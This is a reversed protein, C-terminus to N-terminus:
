AALSSLGAVHRLICLADDVNIVGDGDVDAAAEASANGTIANPLGAVFKLIEIADNADIKGDGNVDGLAYAELTPATPTTPPTPTTPTTPTAPATPIAPATPTAPATSATPAKPFAAVIWYGFDKINAVLYEGDIVTLAKGENATYFHIELEFNMYNYTSDVGCAYYDYNGRMELPIDLLLNFSGGHLDYIWGWDHPTEVELDFGFGVMNIDGAGAAAKKPEAWENFYDMLIGLEEFGPIEALENMDEEFEQIEELGYSGWTSLTLYDAINARTLGTTDMRWEEELDAKIANFQAQTLTIGAKKVITEESYWYTEVHIERGLDVTPLTAAVTLTLAFIIIFSNIIASVRKKM